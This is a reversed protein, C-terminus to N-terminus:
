TAVTLLFELSQRVNAVPGEGDPPEALMVDQELVYWGSYGVAELMSVLRAIDVDGAGLPRFIGAAVADTFATDGRVVQQALTMDVDKLHVHTVREAYQATVEVPDVGAVALHGTDVCLGVSSGAMVRDVEERREVMTGVHPHLCAVVGRAAALDFVRDLNALLTKWGFEDLVPRDDYGERGTIAALVAVEAGAALCSDLFSEVEVHPDHSPDHLLVPLFGGVARIGYTALQDAKAAPDTTLFGHPGFETAALGLSRMETLVQEPGLQYGWGPVECVGWSIPAGAVRALLGAPRQEAQDM